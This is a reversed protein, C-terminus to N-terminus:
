NISDGYMLRQAHNLFTTRGSTSFTISWTRDYVSPPWHGPTQLAGFARAIEPILKHGWCILVTKGHYMPSSKIEEVMKRYNDREFSNKIEMKLLTALPTVTQIPRLSSDGKPAAMAYIAAPTGNTTLYDTESFYPAMAAARERGKTSLENGQEPKEAHRIIIIQAPLANLNAASSFLTIFITVFFYKM